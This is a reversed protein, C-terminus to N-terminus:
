NASTAYEDWRQDREAQGCRTAVSSPVGSPETVRQGPAGLLDRSFREGRKSLLVALEKESERNIRGGAAEFSLVMLLAVILFLAVPAQGAGQTPRRSRM